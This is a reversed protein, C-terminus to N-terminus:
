HYDKIIVLVGVGIVDIFPKKTLFLNQYKRVQILTCQNQARVIKELTGIDM